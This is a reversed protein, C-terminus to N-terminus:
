LKIVAAASSGWKVLYLGEVWHHTDITIQLNSILTEEVLEGLTTYVSLTRSDPMEEFQITLKDETPNPYISWGTTVDTIGILQEITVNESVACGNEDIIEIFYNGSTFNHQEDLVYEIGNIFLTLSGTGGSASVTISGPIEDVAPLTNSSLQIPAAEEITFDFQNFCGNQDIIILQNAGVPLNEPNEGSFILSYNGAGGTLESVIASGFDDASCSEHIPQISADIISPEILSVTNQNECGSQSIVQIIYEGSPLNSFTGDASQLGDLSFIINEEYNSQAFIEGDSNGNCSPHMPTVLLDPPTQWEITLTDSLFTFGSNTTISAYYDGPESVSLTAGEAGTSWTTSVAEQSLAIDIIQGPCITSDFSILSYGTVAGSSQGQIIHINGQGLFNFFRDQTGNPWTVILSDIIETEGLGFIKRNSNQGLYSEGCLIYRTQLQGNAFVQIESGIAAANDTTGELTVGIWNANNGNNKWLNSPYPAHNNNFYDTYGDNNFDGIVNCHSPRFDESLGFSNSMNSFTGDQNQEYFINQAAGITTETTAIILDLLGNNDADIWNAGWCFGYTVVGLNTALNTFFGQGNNDLLINGSYGDSVFFDPDGDNNYDGVTASMSDIGELYGATSPAQYFHGTGDNIYLENAWSARDVIVFLDLHNDGNVDVFVPQFVPRPSLYLGRENTANTFTKDGNNIYFQSAYEAGPNLNPAYYKAIYFDLDGDHDVDAFAAGQYNYVETPFGANFSVNTFEMLSTQELLHIHGGSQALFLDYDGDNDYDVWLISKIHADVPLDINLDIEEFTSGISLFARVGQNGDPTTIDDFGDKNFDVFSAGNGWITGDHVIPNDEFYDHIDFQAKSLLPFLGVFIFVLIKM